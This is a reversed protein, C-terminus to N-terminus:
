SDTAGDEAGEVQTLKASFQKRKSDIEIEGFDEANLLNPDM